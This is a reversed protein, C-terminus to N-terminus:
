VLTYVYIYIYIYIHIYVAPTGIKESSFVCMDVYRCLLVFKCKMLCTHTNEFKSECDCVTVFCDSLSCTLKCVCVCVRVCVCEAPYNDSKYIYINCNVHILM